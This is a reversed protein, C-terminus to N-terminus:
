FWTCKTNELQLTPVWRAAKNIRKRGYNQDPNKQFNLGSMFGKNGELRVIIRGFLNNSVVPFADTYFNRKEGEQYKSLLKNDISQFYDFNNTPTFLTYKIVSYREGSSDIEATIRAIKEDSTECEFLRAFTAQSYATFILALILTKM